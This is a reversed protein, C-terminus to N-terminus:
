KNWISRRAVKELDSDIEALAARIDEVYTRHYTPGDTSKDHMYSASLDAAVSDRLAALKTQTQNIYHAIARRELDRM